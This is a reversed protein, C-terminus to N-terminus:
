PPQKQDRPQVQCTAADPGLALMGLSRGPRKLGKLRVERHWGAQVIRGSGAADGCDTKDLQVWLGFKGHSVDVLTLRGEISDPLTARTPPTATVRKTM